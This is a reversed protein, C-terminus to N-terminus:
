IKLRKQAEVCVTRNCNVIQARNKIFSNHRWWAKLCSLLIVSFMLVSDPALFFLRLIVYVAYYLKNLLAFLM